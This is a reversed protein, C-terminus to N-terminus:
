SRKELGARKKSRNARERAVVSHNSGAIVDTADERRPARSTMATFAEHMLSQFTHRVRRQFLIDSTPSCCQFVCVGPRSAIFEAKVFALPHRLWLTKSSDVRNGCM